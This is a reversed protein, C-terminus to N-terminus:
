VGAAREQSPAAQRWAGIAGWTRASSAGLHALVFLAVVPVLLGAVVLGAHWWPFALRQALRAGSWPIWVIIALLVVSMILVAVDNQTSPAMNSLVTIGRQLLAGAANGGWYAWLFRRRLQDSREGAPLPLSSPPHKSPASARPAAKVLLAGTVSVAGLVALALSLFRARQVQVLVELLKGTTESSPAKVRGALLLRHYELVKANHDWVLYYHTAAAVLLGIGLLVLLVRVGRM